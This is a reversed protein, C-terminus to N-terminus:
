RWNSFATTRQRRVDELLTTVRHRRDILTELLQQLADEDSNLWTGPIEKWASDVVELPFNEVISLWPQFSDMSRVEDYISTRFYLGQLPSDQFQWIAGNFAFGHDIMQAFFGLRGPTEGKLPTWRKGRARFFVAQRSDANGVWKDFVLIGLFDSRNEIKQLLKDPLFDFTAVREPHVAMRSGFHLGAPVSIRKNGLVIYLEPNEAIFDDSLEIVATDPVHIQLYRLFACSLWENILIRRHQPNNVFKVVYFHGDEGEILHAQAGGRM